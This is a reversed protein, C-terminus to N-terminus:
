PNAEGAQPRGQGGRPYRRYLSARSIGLAGAILTRDMGAQWCREATQDLEQLLLDRARALAELDALLEGRRQAREVSPRRCEEGMTEAELADSLLVAAPEDDSIRAAAATM